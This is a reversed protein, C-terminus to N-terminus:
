PTPEVDRVVGNADRYVDLGLEDDSLKVRFSVYDALEAGHWRVQKGKLSHVAHFTITASGLAPLLEEAEDLSDSAFTAQAPTKAAAQLAGILRGTAAADPDKQAALDLHLYYAVLTKITSDGCRICNAATIITLHDDPFRILNSHFGTRFGGNHLVARHGAILTTVWGYGYRLDHKGDDSTFPTVLRQPDKVITGADLAAVWKALDRPTTLIGVDARAHM